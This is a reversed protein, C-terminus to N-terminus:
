VERRAWWAELLKGLNVLTVPGFKGMIQHKNRAYCRERQTFEDITAM